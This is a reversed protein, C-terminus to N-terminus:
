RSHPNHLCVPFISPCCPPRVPQVQNYLPGSTPVIVPQLLAPNVRTAPLPDLTLFFTLYPHCVRFISCLTCMPACFTHPLHAFPTCLHAFTCPFTCLPTCLHALTRLHARFTRLPLAFTRSPARIHAFLHAITRLLHVLHTCTCSLSCPPACFPACTPGSGPCIPRTTRTHHTCAWHLSISFFVDFNKSFMGTQYPKSCFTSKSDIPSPYHYHCLALPHTPPTGTSNPPCHCGPHHHLVPVPPCARM